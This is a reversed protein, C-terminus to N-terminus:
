ISLITKAQAKVPLVGFLDLICFIDINRGQLEQCRSIILTKLDAADVHWMAAGKQSPRRGHHYSAKLEGSDIWRQVHHHDLGLMECVEMKSFWGDKARLSYHLRTAKVKVANVSRGLAHAMVRVSKKQYNTELYQLEKETWEPQKSQALGLFAVQGKVGYLSCGILNELKDVSDRTGDYHLRVLDQEAETWRHNKGRHGKVAYKQKPKVKVPVPSVVQVTKVPAPKVVPTVKGAPAVKKTVTIEAAIEPLEKLSERHNRREPIQILPLGHRKNLENAKTLTERLGDIPQYQHTPCVLCEALVINNDDGSNPVLWHHAKCIPVDPTKKKM